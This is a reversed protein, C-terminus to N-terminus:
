QQSISFFDRLTLNALDNINKCNQWKSKLFARIREQKPYGDELNGTLLDNFDTKLLFTLGEKFDNFEEHSLGMNEFRKEYLAHTYFHLLEHVITKNPHVRDVSIFFYKDDINYGCMMSITLYSTINGLDLDTNFLKNLRADVKSTISNWGKDLENIKDQINIKKSKMKDDFFCIVSTKDEIKIGQGLIEQALQPLSEPHNLSGMTCQLNDYEKALDYKFSIKVIKREIYYYSIVIASLM